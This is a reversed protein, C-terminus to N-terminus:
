MLRSSATLTKKTFKLTGNPLEFGDAVTTVAGTSPNFRYVQNPLEPSPRFNQLYGYLTDTFYVDGNRPNVAVDNLSNWQRGFYNNVLVTLPMLGISSGSFIPPGELPTCKSSSNYPPLPNVVYLAPATNNGQGEGTFLLQGRYLTAGTHNTLCEFLCRFPFNAPSPHPGNSNIVPPTANVTQVQVHGSANRMSSVAAAQSLAIKQIINSKNLGTGAAAAGANQVFFVEDQL